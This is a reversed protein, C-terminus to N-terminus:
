EAGGKEGNTGPDLKALIEKAALSLGAHTAARTASCEVRVAEYTARAKAERENAQRLQRLARLAETEATPKPSARKPTQPTPTPKPTM